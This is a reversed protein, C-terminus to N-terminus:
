RSAGEMSLAPLLAHVEFGGDQRPGWRLEGACATVGERLGSLGRGSGVTGGPGTAPGNRITVDVRDGSRRVTVIVHAGPAHRLVNTLAEQVTRYAATRVEPALLGAADLEAVDATLSVGAAQVRQLLAFLDTRAEGTMAALGERAAAAITGMIEQSRQPDTSALRRAAGAQLAVVTLSHGIQDHVERALRLREEVVARHQAVKEQGALLRNNVRGQEVLRSVENVALGGLWCAAMMAAEGLPDGAGVGLLQGLLCVALGAVAERRNSLAAVAFTAALALSTGSLTGDLPTVLRSFATALCWTVALTAVPRWWVLALPLGVAASATVAVWAPTSPPLAGTSELALGVGIAGAGLVTWRQAAARLPDLYDAPHPLTPDPVEVPVTLSVVEERTRALLRRAAQEIQGPNVGTEAQMALARLGDLLAPQLREQTRLREALVAATRQVQQELVIEERQRDLATLRLRRVRMLRGVATPLIGVFTTVFFVGNVLTWGTMSPLDIALGALLPLLGGLAVARGRGHAGLSYSAFMLAFLWVGGGDDAGPWLLAQVTTGLTAFATIVCIPLAPSSRRLALIGLLPAGCAVFALLAPTGRHLAVAEGLGAVVFGAAVAVDARTLGARRVM